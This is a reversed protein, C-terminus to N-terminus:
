SAGYISRYVAAAISFSREKEAIARITHSLGPKKILADMKKAALLYEAPSLDNLVYGTGHRAITDSDISINKTIVVPLGMAWYEGNKIPTGYRRSPLPKMPCIAFDALGLYLPIESHTVFRKVIVERDLGAASCYAGIEEESHNSLLLVRFDSGFYRHAAKFFDFTERELYLGGFKGAYVCTIKHELGLERLLGPDKKKSLDFAELDVCAPKVFCDSRQIGYVGRAHLDMGPAATIVKEARKYQLKELLFLCRFAFSNKKWTGGELMPLAHPEFSDLVLPKGTLRSLLYAIAGGPTCWGHIGHINRFICFCALYTLIFPLKLAMLWGFPRYTFNLVFINQKKLAAIQEGTKGSARCSAPSLTLLYISSGPPLNEKIQLVYPLTYSQILADPFSWYTTVLLNKASRM